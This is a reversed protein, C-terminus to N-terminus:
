SERSASADSWGRSCRLSGDDRVLIYEFSNDDVRTWRHAGPVSLMVATSLADAEMVSRARVSASVTELPSRGTSPDVIHHRTHDDDYFNEYSGSTAVAGDRLRIVDPYNSKKAPDEIAIKWPRGPAREGRTRIDGGANVLHNAAGAAALRQSMRDVIYGKAVGDLTLGMGDRALDIRRDSFRVGGAGVLALAARVDAEDPAGTGSAEFLDILPKVTPDFAGGTRRHMEISRIIVDTLESPPEALSGHANLHSLPTSSDHRSLVAVLRDMEAWALEIAEQCLDRSDHATQIEVLTGMSPRASTLVPADDGLVKFAPRLGGGAVAGVGLIGAVKLFTRRDTRHLLQEIVEDRRM